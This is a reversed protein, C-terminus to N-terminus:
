VVVPFEFKSVCSKREALSAACFIVDGSLYLLHVKRLLRQRKWGVPRCNFERYYSYSSYHTRTYLSAWNLLLGSVNPLFSRDRKEPSVFLGFLFGGLLAHSLDM